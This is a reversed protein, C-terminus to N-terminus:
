TLFCDRLDVADFGLSMLLSLAAMLQGRLKEVVDAEDAAPTMRVASEMQRVGKREDTAPKPHEFM